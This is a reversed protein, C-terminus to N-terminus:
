SVSTKLVSCDVAFATPKGLIEQKPALYINEPCSRQKSSAFERFTFWNAKFLHKRHSKQSVWRVFRRVGFTYLNLGPM